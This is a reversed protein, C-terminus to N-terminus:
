APYIIRRRCRVTLQPTRHVSLELEFLKLIRLWQQRSLACHQLRRGRFRPLLAAIPAAGADANWVISGAIVATPVFENNTKGAFDWCTTGLVPNPGFWPNMLASAWLNIM